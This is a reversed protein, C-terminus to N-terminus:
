GRRFRLANAWRTCSAMMKAVNNSLDADVIQRMELLFAEIEPLAPQLYKETLDHSLEPNGIGPEAPLWRKTGKLDQGYTM